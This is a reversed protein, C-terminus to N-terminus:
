SSVVIDAFGETRAFQNGPDLGMRGAVFSQGDLRILRKCREDFDATQFNLRFSMTYKCPSFLYRQCM